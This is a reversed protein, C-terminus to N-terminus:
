TGEGTGVEGATGSRDESPSISVHHAQAEDYGIPKEVSEKGL